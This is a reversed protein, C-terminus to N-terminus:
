TTPIESLPHSDITQGPVKPLTLVFNSGQGIEGWVKIEGGHLQADERAISLGLGTGGRERSRSPDARWFRDFVRSIQQTTLGVGFDRVGISVASESEKITVNIAKGESHDIANALLNRMIREVRRPDAEIYIQQDTTFINLQADTEKSNIGLDDACRRVLAAVDVRDPSLVAVQADFRSVELLDSLLNEFREIQSILLEASRAIIPDFSERASYIVDSAMRITTLPTRLEHSVDSVFRQQVRSLNELSTIQKELTDAMENFAQGLRAIEDEGQVEMRKLLDGSTLQEAVEAAYKVPKIVQRLVVSAVIMILLILLLGAGWMSRGILDITKQQADFGFLVYMEYNGVNPINLKKGIVVGDLKEGNVYKLTTQQWKLESSDRVENRFSKSISSPKLFNSTSVAPIGKIERNQIQILVVERGSDKASLNTSNIVETVLEDYDTASNLGSIIFRYDAYQIASEGESISAAIKEEIIGNAIRNYLNSGLFYILSVSILGSVAFVKRFLSRRFFSPIFGKIKM